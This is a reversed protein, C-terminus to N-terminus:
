SEVEELDALNEGYALDCVLPVKLKVCNEMCQKLLPAVRKLESKPLSFVLEDHIQLILRAAFGNKRLLEDSDLMAKKVLDAASGQLRTNKAIREAGSRPQFKASNIDPLQRVRGLLTEVEGTARAQEVVEEFFRTVEPFSNYFSDIYEKAQPRSIALDEALGHASIGYLIGFNVTKGISRERSTVEEPSKRFIRGASIAHIDINNVFAEVL